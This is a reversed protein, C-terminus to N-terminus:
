VERGLDLFLYKGRLFKRIMPYVLNGCWGVEQGFGGLFDSHSIDLEPSEARLRDVARRTNWKFTM